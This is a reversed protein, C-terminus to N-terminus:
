GGAAAPDRQSVSPCHVTRSSSAHHLLGPGFWWVVPCPRSQLDQSQQREGSTMVSVVAGFTYCQTRCYYQQGVRIAGEGFAPNTKTTSACERRGYQKDTGIRSPEMGALLPPGPQVVERRFVPEISLVGMFAFPRLGSTAGEFM